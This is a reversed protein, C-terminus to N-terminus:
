WSGGGGGGGGGGSFGGGGFGSSFGSSSRTPTVATSFTQFSRHMMSGFYVANFASNDYGTYWKPNSLSIDKFREAWIKEVGFAIAYPLLKEFMNQNKAQFELQREQSSLFTKLSKGVSAQAAGFATKKPMNKGFIFAIVALPLNMTGGAAGALAYYKKRITDPNEPFFSDAVLQTYILQFVDQVEDAIKVDKIKVESEEAFLARLLKKEFPLQAEDIPGGEKFIFEGKKEEVISLYGQAALQIISGFIDRSDVTENVLTGTEAPTLARGEQTKPPDFWVRVQQAEPDRGTLYWKIPIYLPLFIYWILAAVVLLIIVLVIIVKGLPTEDFPVYPKPELVAVLGKPFSVVITLGSGPSINQTSASTSKQETIVDCNHNTSGAPGTYCAMKVGNIDVGDPFRVTTNVQEVPATWENGTSNWYLEDHDSFYTLAGSVTYTIIYTHLGTITRNADGIKITIKNDVPSQTFSYSAGQEDEVSQVRLTLEYQKKDSNTKIVPIYRYIGHKYIDEFDYEIKEKVLITGDKQITIQNDYTRIVEARISRPFVCLVIFLLVPVIKKM